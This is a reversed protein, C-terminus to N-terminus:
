GSAVVRPTGFVGGAIVRHELRISWNTSDSSQISGSPRVTYDRAIGRLLTKLEEETRHGITFEAVRLYVEGALDALEPDASPDVHWTAPVFWQDLEQLTQVGALYRGLQDYLQDTLSSSM